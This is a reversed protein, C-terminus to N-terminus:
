LIMATFIALLRLTEVGLKDFPLLSLTGAVLLFRLELGFEEAFPTEFTGSVLLLPEILLLGDKGGANLLKLSEEFELLLLNLFIELFARTGFGLFLGFLVLLLLRGETGQLKIWFGTSM